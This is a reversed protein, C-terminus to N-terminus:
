HWRYTLHARIANRQVGKSITSEFMDAQLEAGWGNALEFGVQLGSGIGYSSTQVTGNEFVILDHEFVHGGVFWEDFWRRISLGALGDSMKQASSNQELSLMLYPNLSWNDNVVLQADMGLSLGNSQSGDASAGILGGEIGFGNQPVAAAFKSCVLLAAIICLFLYNQKKNIM